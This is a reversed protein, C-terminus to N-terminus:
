AGELESMRALIRERSEDTLVGAVCACAGYEAQRELEAADVEEVAWISVAGRFAVHLTRALLELDHEKSIMGANRMDELATRWLNTALALLQANGSAVHPVARLLPRSLEPDATYARTGVVALELLRDLPDSEGDHRPGLRERHAALRQEFLAAIIGGKNGFLNFPTVFAVGARKALERMSFGSGGNERVLDEATALIQERRKQKGVEHQSVHDRAAPVQQM